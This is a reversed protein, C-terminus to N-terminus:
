LRPRGSLVADALGYVFPLVHAAIDSLQIQQAVARDVIIKTLEIALTDRLTSLEDQM